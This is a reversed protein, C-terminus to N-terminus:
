DVEALIYGYGVEGYSRFMWVDLDLSEPVPVDGVTRRMRKYVQRTFAVRIARDDAHGRRSLADTPACCRRLWDETQLAEYPVRGPLEDAVLYQCILEGDRVSATWHWPARWFVQDDNYPDKGDFDGLAPFQLPTSPASIRGSAFQLGNSSSM